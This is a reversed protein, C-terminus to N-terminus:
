EDGHSADPDNLRKYEGDIVQRLQEDSMAQLRAREESEEESKKIETEAVAKGHLMEHLNMAAARRVEPTPIIPESMRGDPMEVSIPKGNRLNILELFNDVGGNTLKSLARRWTLRVEKTPHASLPPAVAAAVVQGESDRRVVVNGQKSYTDDLSPELRPEHNKVKLRKLM